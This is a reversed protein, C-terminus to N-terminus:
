RGSPIWAQRVGIWTGEPFGEIRAYPRLDGRIEKYERKERLIVYTDGAEPETDWTGEITLTTSSNSAIRRVQGVGKGSAIYVWDRGTGFRGPTWSKGSDELTGSTAGTATGSDLAEFEIVRLVREKVWWPVPTKMLVDVVPQPTGDPGVYWSGTAEPRPPKPPTEGLLEDIRLQREDLRKVDNSLWLRKAGIVRDASGRLVTRGLPEDFSWSYEIEMVGMDVAYTDGVACVLDFAEFRPDLYPLAIECDPTPQQLDHLILAALERAESESDVLSREQTRYIMKRHKRGGSGDPIGYKQVISDDAEAWVFGEDETGRYRFIVGVWTRVDAESGSLRRTRFGGNLTVDPTTKSRMPDKVTLRFANASPSWKEILRFGTPALANELAEWLSVNSVVYKTVAFNPDDEYVIPVNFGQDTVIRNLLDPSAAASIQAEEYKLALRGEIVWDKLPQSIGVCTATVTRVNPWEESAEVSAPGVYGEFMRHWSTDGGKRIDLTVAHYSGLLPGDSNYASTPDNPDLSYGVEVLDPPNNFELDLTWAGADFNFRLTFSRVRHSLDESGVVLRLEIPKLEAASPISRM